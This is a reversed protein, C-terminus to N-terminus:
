QRPPPLADKLLALHTVVPRHDSTGDWPGISAQAAYWHASYFIYDIRVLWMPIRVGVVAPRSSGPTAAGPFTHGFGQGAQRWADKLVGALHAYARSQDGTNFDGAVILPEEHAAAFTALTQMQQERERISREIHAPSIRLNGGSGMSTSRTHINLLTVRQGAVEM